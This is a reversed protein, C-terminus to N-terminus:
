IEITELYAGEPIECEVHLMDEMEIHLLELLKDRTKKQANLGPIDVLWGV